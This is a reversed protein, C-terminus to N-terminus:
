GFELSTVGYVRRIDTRPAEGFYMRGCGFVESLGWCRALTLAVQHPEPVDMQVQQGQIRSFLDSMLSDAVARSDAFVPGLKYGVRCPRAVAYGVLSGNEMIGVAHVGPQRVWRLLFGTRPVPFCLRDYRDVQDFPIQDLPTVKGEGSGGGQATGQHRIHRYALEFGGARYFPMMHYVGDMGIAAGENLRQRLQDRRYHWLRSGLGQGRVDPRMIFLGMFGFRREYSLITGGGVLESGKRLAIFADPDYDWVTELDTLGPNWGERAAWEDLIGREEQWMPGLTMGNPHKM